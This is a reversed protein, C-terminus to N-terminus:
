VNDNKPNPVTQDGPAPHCRDEALQTQIALRRVLITLQQDQHRSRLYVRFFAYSLGVIALYFMADAGRGVGLIGAIWQTIGPNLVFVAVALWFLSWVVWESSTIARKRFRNFARSLAYVAFAVIVIQIILM